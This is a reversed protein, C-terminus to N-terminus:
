TTGKPYDSARAEAMLEEDKSLDGKQVDWQQRAERMGIILAAINRDPFDITRLFKVLGADREAELGAQIFRVGQAIADQVTLQGELITHGQSVISTKVFPRTGKAAVLAQCVYEWGEVGHLLHDTM